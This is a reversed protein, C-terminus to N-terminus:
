QETRRKGHRQEARLFAQIVTDKSKTFEEPPGFFVINGDHLFAIRDAIVLASEIDHSIVFNTLGFRENVDAIMEEVTVRNVPDLGTTPEDYLIIEPKLIIARALAVRKQMGGSLQNTLKEMTGQPDLGVSSLTTAVLERLESKSLKARHATLPFAVNQFVNMNDFLAAGQFLVGFRKRLQNLKKVNEYPIPDGFVLIEGSEPRILGVIHKLLVSKGTGSPGLLFTTKRAPIKLSVNALVKQSRPEFSKTVDRLEIAVTENM